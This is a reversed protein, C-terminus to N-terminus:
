NRENNIENEKEKKTNVKEFVAAVLTLRLVAGALAFFGGWPWASVAVTSLGILLVAFAVLTLIVGMVVLAIKIVDKM